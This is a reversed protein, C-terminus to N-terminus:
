RGLAALFEASSLVAAGDARADDAVARDSSVVLVPRDVPVTRVLTAIHDDATVGTASFVVRVVRSAAPAVAADDGDFVVVVSAGSRTAAEELMTVTRRREEEPELGSWAERALNYGDVVVQVEPDSVMHRRAEPSDDFVGPPLSPARRKRRGSLRDSRNRRRDGIGPRGEEGPGLGGARSTGADVPHLAAAAADLARALDAAAGAAAQVAARAASGDIVPATVPEPEPSPLPSSPAAPGQPRPEVAPRELSAKAVPGEVAKAALLEEEAQRTAARSLKLDRRVQALKAELDKQARVAANREGELVALRETAQDLEAALRDLDRSANDREAQARRRAEDARDAKERARALKEDVGVDKDRRARGGARASPAAALVPDERWGEPRNLWLWGARGVVSEEAQEAVRARFEDDEEVAQRLRGYAAASLRSFGMIPRILPPSPVRPDALEGEAAIRLALLCAERLLRPDFDIAAVGSGAGRRGRRDARCPWGPRVLPM